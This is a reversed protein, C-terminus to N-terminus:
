AWRLGGPLEFAAYEFHLVRRRVPMVAPSSAHLLLPSMLMVGGAPVPCTIVDEVSVLSRAEHDSLRGLRHTGPLVHLAGNDEGTNDLLLRLAVIQALVETPPQVHPLGGKVSWPGFGPVILKERVTITLDQHWPVTWNAKANKDFGTLKVAGAEPGLIEKPYQAVQLSAGLVRLEESRQLGHRFGARELSSELLKETEARIDPLEAEPLVSEVIVYGNEEFEERIGM